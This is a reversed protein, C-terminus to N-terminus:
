RARSCAASGCAVASRSSSSSRSAACAVRCAGTTCRCSPRATSTSRPTGRRSGPSRAGPAGPRRRPLRGRPPGPDLLPVLLHQLGGVTRAQLVHLLPGPHGPGTVVPRPHVALLRAPELLRQDRHRGPQLPGAPVAVRLVVDVVLDGPQHLRHAVPLVPRQVGHAQALDQARNLRDDRGVSLAAQRALEAHRPDRARVAVAVLDRADRWSCISAYEERVTDIVSRIGAATSDHVAFYPRAGFLRSSSYM